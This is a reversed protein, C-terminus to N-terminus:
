KKSLATRGEHEPVPSRGESFSTRFEAGAGLSPGRFASVFLIPRYYLPSPRKTFPLATNLADRFSMTFLVDRLPRQIFPMTFLGLVSDAM